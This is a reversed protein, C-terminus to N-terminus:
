RHLIDMNSTYQYIVRWIDLLHQYMVDNWDNISTFLLSMISLFWNIYWVILLPRIDLALDLCVFIFYLIKFDFVFITHKCSILYPHSERHFNRMTMLYKAALSELTSQCSFFIIFDFCYIYIYIHTYIYIYIYEM